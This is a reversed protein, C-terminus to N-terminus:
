KMKQQLIFLYQVSKAKKKKMQFCPPNQAPYSAFGIPQSPQFNLQNTLTCNRCSLSCFIICPLSSVNSRTLPALRSNKKGRKWKNVFIIVIFNLRVRMSYM